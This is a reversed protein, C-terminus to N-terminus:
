EKTEDRRSFHRFMPEAPSGPCLEPPTKAEADDPSIPLGPCQCIYDEEASIWQQWEKRSMNRTLKSCLEDAFAAPGIWISDAIGSGSTVIRRGDESFQVGWLFGINEVIMEGVLHLTAADSFRIMGDARGSSLILRGDPSFAVGVVAGDHKEPLEGLMQRTRVDWLRVTGDGSGLVIQHGDASVAVSRVAKADLEKERHSLVILEQATSSEWVRVMGDDHGSVSWRSDPTLLLTKDEYGDPLVSLAKRTKADWVRVVGDDGGSIIWRGDPSFAVSRVPGSHEALPTDLRHIIESEWVVKSGADYISDPRTVSVSWLRVTGDQGGSVIQSGDSNFAVSRVWTMQDVQNRLKGSEGDWLSLEHDDSGGSVILRGDPSIAVSLASFHTSDTEVWQNNEANWIYVMGNEHGLVVRNGGANVAVSLVGGGVSQDHEQDFLLYEVGTRVDWLNVRGNLGWVVRRGDKSIAISRVPEEDDNPWEMEVLLTEADWLCLGDEGGSAIWRGDESAALSLVSLDGRELRAMPQGTQASWLRVGNEGGSIIQHGEATFAVANIQHGVPILRRLHWRQKLVNLLAEYVHGPALKAAALVQLMAREDGGSRAGSLMAEAHAALRQANARRALEKTHLESALARQESLYARGFAGVAVVAVLGVAMLARFFKRRGAEAEHRAQEEAAARREAEHRAQKEAEARTEAEQRVREEAVARTEAEQRAQKEATARTEAEQRAQEEAAARAKQEHVLRQAAELEAQRRRAEEERKANERLRSAQLFGSCAALSERFAPRAALKEAIGLREGEMLWADKRGIKEWARMDRELVAADKLNERETVLWEALVSWQRLLAEHAVEVVTEGERRDTLLLRKEALARVLEHAKRPLSALKAVRRMPQDNGPNITALWPIFADHLLKLQRERTPEDGSLVSEAETRIIEAFGGMRRYEDLRLGGDSGYDRYM